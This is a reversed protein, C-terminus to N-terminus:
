MTKRPRKSPSNLAKSSPQKGEGVTECKFKSSSAQVKHKFETETFPAFFTYYRCQNNTSIKTVRPSQSVTM